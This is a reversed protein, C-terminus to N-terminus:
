ILKFTLIPLLHMLERCSSLVRLGLACHNSYFNLLFWEIKGSKKRNCQKCL